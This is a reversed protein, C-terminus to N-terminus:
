CQLPKRTKTQKKIEVLKNIKFGKFIVKTLFFNFPAAHQLKREIKSMPKTVEKSSDMIPGESSEGKTRSSDVKTRLSSDEEKNERARKNPTLPSPTRTRKKTEDTDVKAGDRRKFSNEIDAYVKLQDKLNDLGIGTDEDVELDPHRALLSSLHEHRYEKFHHPNRFVNRPNIFRDNKLVFKQKPLFNRVKPLM